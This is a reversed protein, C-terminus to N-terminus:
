TGGSEGALEEVIRVADAICPECVRELLHEAEVQRQGEPSRLDAGLLEGCEVTGHRARFRADFRQVADFVWEKREDDPLDRGLFGLVM